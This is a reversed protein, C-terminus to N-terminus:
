DLTGAVDAHTQAQERHLPMKKLIEYPKEGKALQEEIWKQLADYAQVQKQYETNKEPDAIAYDVGWICIPKENFHYVHPGWGQGAWHDYNDISYEDYGLLLGVAKNFEPTMEVGEEINYRILVQEIVNYSHTGQPIGFAKFVEPHDRLVRDVTSPNYILLTDRSFGHDPYNEMMKVVQIQDPMERSLQELMPLSSRKVGLGCSEFGAPKVGSLIPVVYMTEGRLALAANTNLVDPSTVEEVWPLTGKRIKEDKLHLSKEKIKEYEKAPMIYVVEGKENTFERCDRLDTVGAKTLHREKWQVKAYEEPVGSKLFAQVINSTVLRVVEESMQLVNRVQEMVMESLTPISLSTESPEENNAHDEHFHVREDVEGHGHGHHMEKGLLDLHNEVLYLWIRYNIEAQSPLSGTDIPVPEYDLTIIAPDTSVLKPKLTSGLRELVALMAKAHEPVEQPTELKHIPM